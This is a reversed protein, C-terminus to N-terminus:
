EEDSVRSPNGYGKEEETPECGDDVNMVLGFRLLESFAPLGIVRINKMNAAEEREAQTNYGWSALYFKMNSLSPRAAAHKLTELRDDIFHVTAGSEKILPRQLIQELADAKAQDPPLLSAFLRPSDPPADVGFCAALLPSVRHAAKSTAIYYPYPCSALADKVGAYPQQLAQWEPKKMEENRLNEYQSTLEEAKENWQALREVQLQPWDALISDVAKPGDEALIRAMVMSEYGKILVPRVARMGDAIRQQDEASLSGFIHPWRQKCAAFASATVERESDLLVGDFDLIFADSPAAHAKVSRKGATSIGPHVSPRQAIRWANGRLASIKPSAAPLPKSNPLCGRMLQM